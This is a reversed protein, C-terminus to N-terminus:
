KHKFRTLTQSLSLYSASTSKPTYIEYRVVGVGKAIYTVYSFTGSCNSIQLINKITTYGAVQYTTVFGYQNEVIVCTPVNTNTYTPVLRSGDAYATGFFFYPNYSSDLGLVDYYGYQDQINTYYGGSGAFGSTDSELVLWYPSGSVTVSQNQVWASDAVVSKVAKTSDFTSDTYYWTNGATLPLLATPSINNANLNISQVKKNCSVVIMILSLFAFISVLHKKM